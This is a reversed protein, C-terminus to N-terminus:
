QEKLKITICIKRERMMMDIIRRLTVRSNIIMGPANREGVLICGRSDYEANNGAHIRIGEFGPVDLLLPLNMGFRPSMTVVVDYTGEPIATKGAVKKEGRALARWQPELTDALRNGKEDTLVGETYGRRRTTRELTLRM